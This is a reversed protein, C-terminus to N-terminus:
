GALPVPRAVHPTQALLTTRKILSSISSVNSIQCLRQVQLARMESVLTDESAGSRIRNILIGAYEEIEASSADNPVNLYLWIYGAIIERLVNGVQNPTVHSVAM